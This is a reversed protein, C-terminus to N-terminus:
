KKEYDKISLKLAKEALHACHIKQVPLDGLKDAIDNFSVKKAQTITKGKALECLMDSCAIATACGLTQFSIKEIRNKEVKIYVKMTDGCALNLTDGVGSPNVLKGLHKPHLFHEMVQKSHEM